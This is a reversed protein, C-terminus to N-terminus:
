EYRSDPGSCYPVVDPLTEFAGKDFNYVYSSAWEVCHIPKAFDQSNPDVERPVDASKYICIKFKLSINYARQSDAYFGAVGPRDVVYLRNDAPTNRGNYYDDATWPGSPDKTLYTSHRAAEADEGWSLPDSIFGDVAMTPHFYPIVKGMFERKTVPYNTVVGNQKRSIYQCGQIFQGIGYKEVSTGTKTQYNASMMTGRVASDLPENGLTVLYQNVKVDFSKLDCTDNKKCDSNIFKSTESSTTIVKASVQGAVLTLGLLILGTKSKLSYTKM